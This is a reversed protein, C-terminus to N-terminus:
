KRGKLLNEYRCDSCLIAGTDDPHRQYTDGGCTDCGCPAPRLDGDDDTREERCSVCLVCGHSIQFQCVECRYVSLVPLTCVVCGGAVGRSCETTYQHQQYSTSM